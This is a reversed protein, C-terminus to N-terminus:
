ICQGRDVLDKLNFNCKNKLAQKVKGMTSKKDRILDLWEKILTLIVDKNHKM